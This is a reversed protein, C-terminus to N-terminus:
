HALGGDALTGRVVKGTDGAHRRGLSGLLAIYFPAGKKIYTKITRM